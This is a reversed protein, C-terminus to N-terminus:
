FIVTCFTVVSGIQSARYKDFFLQLPFTRFFFIAYTTKPM